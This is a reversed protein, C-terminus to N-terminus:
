ACGIHFSAANDTSRVADPSFASNTSSNLVPLLDVARVSKSCCLSCRNAFPLFDAGSKPRAHIHCRSSFRYWCPRPRSEAPTPTAPLQRPLFIDLTHGIDIAVGEVTHEGLATSQFNRAPSGRINLDNASVRRVSGRRHACEADPFHRTKPRHCVGSRAKPM